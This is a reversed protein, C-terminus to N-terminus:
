NWSSKLHWAQLSDLTATGSDAFVSVGTSTPDPFIQDTLVVQGRDGFVEVSSADILIHLTVGGQDLPLPASKVGAFSSAFDVKGSHTRDVYVQGTKTDYGIQTYQSEGNQGSGARVNLGFKSATGASLHATLELTSGTVSLPTAANSATVDKLNAASGNRLEALGSVPQQVLRVKGGITSLSLTRPFTEAGKWPSTPVQGAYDWNSMWAVGIREGDPTNNWTNAAYFDAGYDVWHARQNASLATDDSLSFADALIHGWGGTSHDVVQLQAQKGMLDQLDWSAWDLSESNAGTASRVVQGGVVLNVSTQTDWPKAAADAFIIDGVMLHGWGMSGDNDDVVQIQAQQGQYQTVDWNTFTLDPSNNGTTTAVVKGGVVLNVATPNAQGWPHNGGAVQLDIFPSTVTFSPSTITGKGPDGDPAYTDLAKPGLQNPLSETSPGSNAFSGTATWGTGYTTGSFDAFVQGAPLTGFPAAGPIYPHNGGGVLFNLHPKTITFTTSSLTGTSGDGGNFSNVLYTGPYGSVTQQNPLTGAAPATGFATGTATWTGYSGSEFTDLPTGAPPTYTAPEDPTFNTGDFQGVLYQVGTGGVSLSLVWKTNQTNGDVPLQYLDPMEWVGSTSGAPGFDSVHSWNKLDPSRYFSVKHQDSLAIVMMWSHTPAYWFVKPDRFNVSHLDLVPNGAYKTWTKGQDTSYAISQKEVDTGKEVSTYMAVMPPNGPTGFGSTNDKDVVASGSFFASSGPDRQPETVPIDNWHVLDTSTAGQWTGYSYLYYRGDRYVLGNPDGMWNQPLTFHFQPRYPEDYTSPAPALSAATIAPLALATAM